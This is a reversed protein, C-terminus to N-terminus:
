PDLDNDWATELITPRLLEDDLRMTREDPCLLADEAREYLLVADEDNHANPYIIGDIERFLGVEEYFYRSWAHTLARERDKTVAANTGARMAGKDRLDLLRLDRRLVPLAVMLGAPEIVGDDGFVEVLCGPLDHAAYYVGRTPCPCPNRTPGSGPHHDFRHLPGFRRFSTATAAHSAPDYIRVVETGAPLTEFLPDRRPPPPALVVM